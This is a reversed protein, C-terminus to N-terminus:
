HSLHHQLKWSEQFILFFKPSICMQWFQMVKVKSSSNTIANQWFNDRQFKRHFWSSYSLQRRHNWSNKDPTPFSSKRLQLVRHILIERVRKAERLGWIILLLKLCKVASWFKLEFKRLDPFPRVFYHQAAPCVLSWMKGSCYKLIVRVFFYDSIRRPPIWNGYSAMKWCHLRM